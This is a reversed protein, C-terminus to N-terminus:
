LGQEKIVRLLEPHLIKNSALLTDKYPDYECGWYDTIFGGAERLIVMGAATDWPKLGEEWFGDFRGMAVYCLDIAASGLRRVGQSRLIMSEFVQLVRQPREKVYYPFGTVLLADEMRMAESTHIPESNLFAGMGKRAEFLEELFPNYVVGLVYEEREKLAISVSVFQLGHAFNTTGDLPDVIWIRHSNGQTRGKEESLIHDEPFAEGIVSLIAGEAKLDADTVLDILGKKRIRFGQKSIERIYEGAKLAAEKAISTEKEWM